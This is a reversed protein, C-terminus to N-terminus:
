RLMKVFDSLSAHKEVGGTVLDSLSAHKEVGGTVFDSAKAKWWGRV